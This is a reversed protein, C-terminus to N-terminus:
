HGMLMIQTKIYLFHGNLEGTLCSVYNMELLSFDIFFKDKSTFVNFSHIVKFRGFDTIKAVRFLFFIM